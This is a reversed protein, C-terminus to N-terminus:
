RLNKLMSYLLDDDPVDDGDITGAIVIKKKDNAKLIDEEITDIATLWWANVCSKQGMRSCRDIAQQHIGPSPIVETMVVNSAVHLNIGVGDALLNGTFMKVKEDEWFRDVCYDRDNMVLPCVSVSKFTSHIDKVIERHWAFVVLKDCGDDMFDSLWEKMVPMKGRVAVQKLREYRLLAEAKKAKVAAEVGVKKVWDIVENKAKEYEARNTIEIPIISPITPPLDKLVEEKTRRLMITSTLIENLEKTNSRGTFDWAMKGGGFRRKKANCYRKAYEFENPFISPDIINIISWLEIPRNLMPTGSLAIVNKVNRSMATIAKTRKAKGNKLMHAEDIILTKFGLNLIEPRISFKETKRIKGNIKREITTMDCFWHRFIDYNILYATDSKPKLEYPIEGGLTRTKVRDTTKHIERRWNEKVARPMVVVAPLHEPHKHLYAVAQLTKGIGPEDTLFARGNKLDFFTVGQKQYDLPPRLLGPIEEIPLNSTVIVKDKNLVSDPIAFGMDSLAIANSRNNDCVWYAPSSDRILGIGQFTNIAAIIKISYPFDLRLKGNKLDTIRKAQMETRRNWYEANKGVPTM